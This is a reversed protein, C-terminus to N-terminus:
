IALHVWNKLWQLLAKLEAETGSNGDIAANLTARRLVRLMNKLSWETDWEGMHQRIEEAEPEYRGLVVYWVSVLTQVGWVWPAVKEVSQECHHQPGQIDLAQKCSKFTV